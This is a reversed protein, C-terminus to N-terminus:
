ESGVIILWDEKEGVQTVVGIGVTRLPVDIVKSGVRRDSDVDLVRTRSSMWHMQVAVVHVDKINSCPGPIAHGNNIGGIGLSTIDLKNGCSTEQHQLNLGIVRTSPREMTMDSPM